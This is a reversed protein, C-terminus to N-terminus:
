LFRKTFIFEYSIVFLNQMGVSASTILQSRKCPRGHLRYYSLFRSRYNNFNFHLPSHVELFTPIRCDTFAVLLFISAVVLYLRSSTMTLKNNIIWDGFYREFTIFNLVSSYIYRDDIHDHPLRTKVFQNSTVRCTICSFFFFRSIPQDYGRSWGKPM